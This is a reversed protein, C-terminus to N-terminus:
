GRAPSSRLGLQRALLGESAGLVAAVSRLSLYPQVVLTARARELDGEPLRQRLPLEFERARESLTGPSIGLDAAADTLTRAPDDLLRQWAQRVARDTVGRAM